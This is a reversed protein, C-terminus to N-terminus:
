AERANSRQRDGESDGVAGATGGQNVPYKVPEFVYLKADASANCVWYSEDGTQLWVVYDGMGDPATAVIRMDEMMAGVSACLQEAKAAEGAAIENRLSAPLYTIM